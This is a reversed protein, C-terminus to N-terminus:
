EPTMWELPIHHKAAQALAHSASNLYCGDDGPELHDIVWRRHDQLTYADHCVMVIRACGMLVAVSVIVGASPTSWHCGLDTEADYVYRPEYDAFCDPSDHQSVILIEPPVPATMRASLCPSGPHPGGPETCGDKQSSYLPERWGRVRLIAHNLAFIPGAGLMEETLGALSPGKGIIYATEGKHADRLAEIPKTM